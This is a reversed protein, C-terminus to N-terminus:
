WQTELEVKAVTYENRQKVNRKLREVVYDMRWREWREM